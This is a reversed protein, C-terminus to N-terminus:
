KGIEETVSGCSLMQNGYYPNKITKYESLWKAGKKNNYMPCFDVYLVKSQGFVKILDYMDNSLIDFHERQHEINDANEGIHEAHEKIDEEIDAFAQKQQEYLLSKDIENIALFLAKGAIAADKGNDTVLANKIHLYQEIVKDVPMKISSKEVNTSTESQTEIVAPTNGEKKNNEDKVSSCSNFISSIGIIISILQKM